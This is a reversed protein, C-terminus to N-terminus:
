ESIVLKNKSKLICVNKELNAPVKEKTLPNKKHNAYIIFKWENNHVKTVIRLVNKQKFRPIKLINM